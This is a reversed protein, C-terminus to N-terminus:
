LTQLHFGGDVARVEGTTSRTLLLRLVEQTVDEIKTQGLPAKSIMEQFHEDPENEGKMVAGLAIGNICMKAAYKVAYQRISARLLARSEAYFKLQDHLPSNDLLYVISGHEADPLNRAFQKMLDIPVHYNVQRHRYNEPDHENNLFLSANSVFATVPKALRGFLGVVEEPKEFNAKVIWAQQGLGEIEKALAKAEKSSHNYHITVDWGNHALHLSIERGIREAGGTVLAHKIM